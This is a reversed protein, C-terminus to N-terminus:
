LALYLGTLSLTLSSVFRPVLGGRAPNVGIAAAGRKSSSLIAYTQGCLLDSKRSRCIGCM